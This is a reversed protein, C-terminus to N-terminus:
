IHYLFKEQRQLLIPKKANMGQNNDPLGYIEDDIEVNYDNNNYINPLLYRREEREINEHETEFFIKLYDKKSFDVNELHFINCKIWQRNKELEEIPVIGEQAEFIEYIRSAEKSKKYKKELPNKLVEYYGEIIDETLKKTVISDKKVFFSYYNNSHIIKKGDVPKNM